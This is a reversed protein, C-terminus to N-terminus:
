KTIRFTRTILTYKNRVNIITVRMIYGNSLNHPVHCCVFLLTMNHTSLIRVDFYLIYASWCSHFLIKSAMVEYFNTTKDFVILTCCDYTYLIHFIISSKVTIFNFSPGSEINGLYNEIINYNLM